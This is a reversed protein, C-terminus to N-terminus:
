VGRELMSDFYRLLSTYLTVGSSGRKNDHFLQAIM